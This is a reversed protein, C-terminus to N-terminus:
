SLEKIIDHRLKKCEKIGHSNEGLGIITSKNKLENSTIFDNLPIIAEKLKEILPDDNFNRWKDTQLIENNSIVEFDDVKVHGNRAYIRFVYKVMLIDADLKEFPITYNVWGNSEIMSSHDLKISKYLNYGSEAVKFFISDIKTDSTNVKISFSVNEKEFLYSPIHLGADISYQKSADIPEVCLGNAGEYAGSNDIMGNANSLWINWNPTFNLTDFKIPDEFDSNLQSYVDSSLTFVVLLLLWYKLIENKHNM